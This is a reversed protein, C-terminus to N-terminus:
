KEEERKILEKRIKKKQYSSLLDPMELKDIIQEYKWVFIQTINNHSNYLFEVRISM